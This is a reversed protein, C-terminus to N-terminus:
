TPEIIDWQSLKFSAATTRVALNRRMALRHLGFQTKGIQAYSYDTNEIHFGGDSREILTWRSGFEPADKMVVRLNTWRAVDADLYDGTATNVIHVNGDGLEVIEWDTGVAIDVSGTPTGDADDQLYRQTQRNRLHVVGAPTTDNNDSVTIDLFALQASATVVAQTTGDGVYALYDVTLKGQVTGVGVEDATMTFTHSNLPGNVQQTTWSGIASGGYVQMNTRTIPFDCGATSLTVAITDGLNVNTSSATVQLPQCVDSQGTCNGNPLPAQSGTQAFIAIDSGEGVVVMHVGDPTFAIGEPRNMGTALPSGILTGDAAFNRIQRDDESVVWVSGNGPEVAVGAADGGTLTIPDGTTPEARTDVPWLTPVVSNGVVRGEQVVWFNDEGGRFAIGEAGGSETGPIDAEMIGPLAFDRPNSATLGDIFLETIGSDDSGNGADEWSVAFRGRRVAAIGELDANGFDHGTVEQGIWQSGTPNSLCYIKADDDVGYIGGNSDVTVGSLESGPYNSGMSQLMVREWNSTQTTNASAPETMTLAPALLAVALLLLMIARRYGTQHIPRIM